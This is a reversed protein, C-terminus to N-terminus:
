GKPPKRPRPKAKAELADLGLEVLRRIAESRSPLAPQSRRWADVRKIWDEAAVLNLRRVTNALKAVM